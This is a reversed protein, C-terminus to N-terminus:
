PAEPSPLGTALRIDLEVGGNETALVSAFGVNPDTDTDTDTGHGPVRAPFPDEIWEHPGRRVRTSSAGGPRKHHVVCQDRRGPASSGPGM